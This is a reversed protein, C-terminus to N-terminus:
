PQEPEPRPQEPRPQEPEPRKLVNNRSFLKIEPTNKFAVTKKQLVPQPQPQAQPQPLPQVKPQPQAQPQKRKQFMTPVVKLDGSIAEAPAAIAGPAVQKIPIVSRSFTIRKGKPNSPLM